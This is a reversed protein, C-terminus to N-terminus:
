LQAPIKFHMPSAFRSAFYSSSWDHCSMGFSVMVLLCLEDCICGVRVCVAGACLVTVFLKIWYLVYTDEITNRFNFPSMYKTITHSRALWSWALENGEGSNNGAGTRYLGHHSLQCSLSHTVGHLKGTAFQFNKAQEPSTHRYFYGGFFCGVDYFCTFLEALTIKKAGHLEWLWDLVAKLNSYREGAFLLVMQHIIGHRCVLAGAGQVDYSKSRKARKDNAAFQTTCDSMNHQAGKRARDRLRDVAAVHEPTLGGSYILRGPTNYDADEGVGAKALRRLKMCCDWMAGRFTSHCAPCADLPGRPSFTASVPKPRAGTTASEETATQVTQKPAPKGGEVTAQHLYDEHERRFVTYQQFVQGLTDADLLQHAPDGASLQHFVALVKRFGEVSSERPM